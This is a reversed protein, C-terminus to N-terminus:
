SCLFVVKQIFIDNSVHLPKKNRYILDLMKMQISEYSIPHLFNLFYSRRPQSGKITSWYFRNLNSGSM